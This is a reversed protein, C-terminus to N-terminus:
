IFFSIYPIPLTTQDLYVTRKALKLRGDERRLLDVREGCLLEFDGKDGRTAKYLMFNSKVEIESVDPTPFPRVNSVMHRLRSRPQESWAYDTNLRDVRAKLSDWDDIMIHSKKSFGKEGKAEPTIRVPIRYEIDQTLSDLWDYLQANDLFEAEQNLYSVCEVYLQVDLEQKLSM